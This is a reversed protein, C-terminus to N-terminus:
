IIQFSLKRERLFCKHKMKYQITLSAVRNTDYIAFRMRADRVASSTDVFPKLKERYKFVNFWIIAFAWCVRKIYITTSNDTKKHIIYKMGQFRWWKSWFLYSHLRALSYLYQVHHVSHMQSRQLKSTNEKNQSWVCYMNYDASHQLNAICHYCDPQGQVEASLVGPKPACVNHWAEWVWAVHNRGRNSCVRHWFM